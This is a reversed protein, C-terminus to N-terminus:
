IFALEIYFPQGLFDVSRLNEDVVDVDISDILQLTGRADFRFYDSMHPGHEFWSGFPQTVHISCLVGNDQPYASFMNDALRSGLNCSYVHLLNIPSINVLSTGYQVKSYSYSGVFGMHTNLAAAGTGVTFNCTDNAIRMKQTTSDVQVDWTGQWLLSSPANNLLSKLTSMFTEVTYNGDPVTITGPFTVSGRSQTLYVKNAKSNFLYASNVKVGSVSVARPLYLVGNKLDRCTHIDQALDTGKSVLQAVSSVAPNHSREFFKSVTKVGKLMTPLHKNVFGGVQGLVNSFNTWLNRFIM